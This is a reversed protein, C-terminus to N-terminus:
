DSFTYFRIYQFFIPCLHKLRSFRKSKKPYELPDACAILDVEESQKAYVRLSKDISAGFYETELADFSIFVRAGAATGSDMVSVPVSKFSDVARCANAYTSSFISITTSIPISSNTKAHEPLAERFSGPPIASTGACEGNEKPKICLNENSLDEADGYPRSFLHLAYPLVAIDLCATIETPICNQSGGIIGVAM